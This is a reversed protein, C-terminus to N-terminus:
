SYEYIIVEGAEGAFGALNFGGSAWNIRSSGGYGRTNDSAFPSGSEVIFTKDVSDHVITRAGSIQKSEWIEFAGATSPGTFASASTKVVPFSSTAAGGAGGLSSAPVLVQHGTGVISSMGGAGGANVGATGASGGAGVTVTYSALLTSGRPLHAKVYRGPDGPSSVAVQGAGTTGVGGSGCGGSVLEVILQTTKANPTFTGNSTFRTRAILRGAELSVYGGGSYGEIVGLTSNKRIMGEQPTSPRQATTGESVKLAGTTKIIFNNTSDIEAVVTLARCLKVVGGISWNIAADDATGSGVLAGNSIFTSTNGSNFQVHDVSSSILLRTKSATNDYVVFNDSGYTGVRWDKSATKNNFFRIYSYNSASTGNGNSLVLSSGGGTGYSEIWGSIDSQNSVSFGDLGTLYGSYTISEVKVNEADQFALSGLLNNTPIQNPGTGILSPM